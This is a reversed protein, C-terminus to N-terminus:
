ANHCQMSAIACRVFRLLRHIKWVGFEFSGLIDLERHIDRCGLGVGDKENMNAPRWHCVLASTECFEFTIVLELVWGAVQFEVIDVERWDRASVGWESIKISPFSKLVFVVSGGKHVSVSFKHPAFIGMYKM